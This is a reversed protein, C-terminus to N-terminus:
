ENGSDIVTKAWEMMESVEANEFTSLLYVFSGENWSVSTFTEHEAEDSGYSIFLKGEAELQREEESPKQDPPLFLYQDVKSSLEMGQYTQTVIGAYEQIGELPKSITLTYSKGNGDKYFAIAKPFSGLKQYEEDWADTDNVVGSSFTIGEALNEPIRVSGGLKEKAMESLEALNEVEEDVAHGGSTFAIKGAGIATIGGIVVLAAALIVGTYKRNMKMGIRRKRIQGHVRNLIRDQTEKSFDVAHIEEALQTKIKDEWSSNM